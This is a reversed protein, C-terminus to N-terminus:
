PRDARLIPILAAALDRSREIQCPENLHSPTDFLCDLPFRNFNTGPLFRHGAQIYLAEILDLAKPDLAANEPSVPLTGIVLVKNERAWALFETLTPNVGAALRGADPLDVPLDPMAARYVRAKEVSHEKMDGNPTLTAIGYRREIGTISLATEMLSDVLDRIGFRIGVAFIEQVTLEMLAERDHLFLLDRYDPSIPPPFDPYLLYELPLLLSDGPKLFKKATRLLYRLPLGATLAANVCPMGIIPAMTECRIGFLVNSGGFAVLKPGTIGQAYSQKYVVADHLFGTTLPRGITWIVVGGYLLLSVTIAILFPKLKAMM